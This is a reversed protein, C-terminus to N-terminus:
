RELWTDAWEVIWEAAKAHGEKTWHGDFPYFTLPEPEQDVWERLLPTMNLYPLAKETQWVELRKELETTETSWEEHVITGTESWVDGYRADYTLPSATLVVGV